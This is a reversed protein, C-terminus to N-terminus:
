NLLLRQQGDSLRWGKDEKPATIPGGWHRDDQHLDEIIYGRESRIEAMTMLKREEKVRHDYIKEKKVYVVRM